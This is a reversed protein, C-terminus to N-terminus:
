WRHLIEMRHSDLKLLIFLLITFTWLSSGGYSIFPLPIGIVPFLGITMSINIAFHFFLISLVSYAYVRVFDSKQREAIVSIRILLFGYIVLLLVSGLWGHEEGITCFVFDTTQEPVFDFKTQTGNLYGKGAFGGSGIAIKSQTTNWGVGLPDANPNVLLLVRKQQHPKLVDTLIFDVSVVVSITVVAAVGIVLARRVTRGFIGGLVLTLVIIGIILIWQNVLLTLLFILIMGFGSVVLLPPLGERYLVLLFSLYVMATGADGQVVILGLPIMFLLGAILLDRHSSTKRHGAGFYKALGLATSIKAFESPQIRLSGIEFWSTSGAVERGFFLVFILFLFAIAYFVYALSEYFRYDIVFIFVILIISTFIWVLQKGSSQTFSFITSGAEPEYDAAYITLWGAFVLIFYLMVTLWDIQNSAQANRM